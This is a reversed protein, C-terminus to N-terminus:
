NIMSLISNKTRAEIVRYVEETILGMNYKEKTKALRGGILVVEEYGSERLKEIARDVKESKLLENIEKQSIKEKKNRISPLLEYISKDIKSQEILWNNFSILGTRNQKQLDNYRTELIKSESLKLKSLHNIAQETNGSNISLLIQDIVGKESENLSVEIVNTENIKAESLEEIQLIDDKSRRIYKKTVKYNQQYKSKDNVVYEKIQTPPTEFIYDANTKIIRESIKNENVLEGRSQELNEQYIIEGEYYTMRGFLNLIYKSGKEINIQLTDIKGNELNKVYFTTKGIKVDKKLVSSNDEIKLWSKDSKIVEIESGSYNDIYLKPRQNNWKHLQIYIQFSGVALIFLLVFYKIRKAM